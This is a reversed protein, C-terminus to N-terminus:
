VHNSCVNTSLHTNQDSYIEEKQINLNSKSYIQGMEREKIKTEPLSNYLNNDM